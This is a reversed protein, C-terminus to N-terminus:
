DNGIMQEFLQDLNGLSIERLSNFRRRANSKIRLLEDGSRDWSEIQKVAIEVFDDTSEVLLGENSCLMDGICGRQSAIVAVGHSMAEHIVVPEAENAYKTPFLLVDIGDYFASKDGGYKPGMYEVNKLNAIRGMVAKETIEDDFPGAIKMEIPSTKLSEAIVLFEFIGKEATINSLFGVRINDQQREQKGDERVDIFAANSVWVTKNIGRYREKLLLGMNESLMIHVARKGAIFFATQTIISFRDIYAFSHHHIYIKKRFLRALSLFLIDYLQGYGGSFSIYVSRNAKSILVKLAFGIKGTMRFFRAFRAAFSTSSSAPLDVIELRAGFNSLKQKMLFNILTKWRVPPPFVGIMCIGVNNNTQKEM